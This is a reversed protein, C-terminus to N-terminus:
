FSINKPTILSQSLSIEQIKNFRGNKSTNTKNSFKKNIM